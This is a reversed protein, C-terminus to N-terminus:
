GAWRKGPNSNTKKLTRRVTERSISEVYELEVAKDALLKLSWRAHGKPPEGCSLAILHAEVDGDIISTYVRQSPQRSLVAELGEEVFCRKVRDVKRGSIHLVQAIEESGRRKARDKSADCNLLILATLVKQAAHTGKSVLAELQSREEANLTVVYKEM